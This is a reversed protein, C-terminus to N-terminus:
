SSYFFFFTMKILQKPPAAAARGESSPRRLTFGDSPIFMLQRDDSGRGGPFEGRAKCIVCHLYFPMKLASSDWTPDSSHVPLRGQLSPQSFVDLRFNVDPQVEHPCAFRLPGGLVVFGLRGGHVRRSPSAFCLVGISNCVCFQLSERMKTLLLHMCSDTSKIFLSMLLFINLNNRRERTGLFFVSFALTCVGSAMVPTVFSLWTGGSQVM